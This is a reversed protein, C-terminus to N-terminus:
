VGPHKNTTHMMGTYPCVPISCFGQPPQAVNGITVGQTAMIKVGQLTGIDISGDEKVEVKSGTETEIIANGAPSIKISTIGSSVEVGSADAKIKHIEMVNGEIRPDSGALGQLIKFSILEGIEVSLGADGNAHAGALIKTKLADPIITAPNIPTPSNDLELELLASTTEPTSKIQTPAFPNSVKVSFRSSKDEIRVKGRFSYGINGIPDIGMWLTPSGGAGLIDMSYESVAVNLSDDDKSYELIPMREIKNDTQIVKYVGIDGNPATRIIRYDGAWIVREGNKPKYRLTKKWEDDFVGLILVQEFFEFYVCKKGDCGEISVGPDRFLFQVEDIYTYEESFRGRPCITMRGHEDSSVIIGEKLELEM